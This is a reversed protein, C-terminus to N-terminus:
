ADDNPRPAPLPFLTTIPRTQLLYIQGDAIAWEIDQPQQYHAEIQQGLRALEVAQAETLVQATQQKESLMEQETGGNPLPRIALKKQGIKVEVLRSSRTDVRYLDASVLGAVLAEGLGYSADISSIHRNQSVPDATFLIGSIEPLVM